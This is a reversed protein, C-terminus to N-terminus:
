IKIIVTFSEMLILPQEQCMSVYKLACNQPELPSEFFLVGEKKVQNVSWKIVSVPTLGSLGTIKLYVVGPVM